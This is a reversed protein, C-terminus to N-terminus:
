GDRKVLANFDKENHEALKVYTYGVAFLFPYAVVGLLIWPLISAKGSPPALFFVLPLGGLGIVVVVALRLALSLQARMLGKILAEGVQTQEALDHAVARQKVESLVIRTREPM